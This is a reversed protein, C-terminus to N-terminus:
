YRSMIINEYAENKANSKGSKSFIWKKLKRLFQIALDAFQWKKFISRCTSNFREGLCSSPVAIIAMKIKQPIERIQGEQANKCERLHRHQICCCGCSLDILQKLLSHVFSIMEM